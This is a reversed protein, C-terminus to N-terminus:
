TPTMGRLAAALTADTTTWWLQKHHHLTCVVPRGPWALTFDSGRLNALLQEVTRAYADAEDPAFGIASGDNQRTLYEDDLGLGRLVAPMWEASGFDLEYAWHSKPMVWARGPLHTEWAARALAALNREYPPPVARTLPRSAARITEDPPGIWAVTESATGRPFGFAGSNHYLSEMGLGLMEDAVLPYEVIRPM